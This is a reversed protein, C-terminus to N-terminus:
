QATLAPPRSTVDQVSKLPASNDIVVADSWESMGMKNIASVQFYYKHKQLHRIDCRDFGAKREVDPVLEVPNEMNGVFSYRLVHSTVDYGNEEAPSWQLTIFSKYVNPATFNEIKTPAKGDLTRIPMSSESWIGMGFRNIARVQFIYIQGPRLGQIVFQSLNPAIETLESVGEKWNGSSTYRFSFSDCPEDSPPPHQWQIVVSHHTARRLTPQNLTIPVPPMMQLTPSPESYDGWGAANQAAVQFTYDTLSRLDTVFFEDVDEEVLIERKCTDPDEGYAPPWTVLIRYCTIRAAPAVLAFDVPRTWRILATTGDKLLCYVAAPKGPLTPEPTICRVVPSWDSWGDPTEIAVKFYHLVGAALGSLPLERTFFRLELETWTQGDDDLDPNSDNDGLHPRYKVRWKSVEDDINWRPLVKVCGFSVELVYPEAAKPLAGYGMLDLSNNAM